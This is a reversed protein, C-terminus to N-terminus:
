RDLFAKVALDANGSFGDYVSISKQLLSNKANEGINGCIIVNTDIGSIDSAPIFRMTVIKGNEIEYIKFSTAHEFHGFINNNEFPLAIKM